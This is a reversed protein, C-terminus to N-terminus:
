KRVMRGPFGGARRGIVEVKFRRRQAEKMPDFTPDLDRQYRRFRRLNIDVINSDPFAMNLKFQRERM